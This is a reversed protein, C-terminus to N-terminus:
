ATKEKLWDRVRKVNRQSLPWKYIKGDVTEVIISYRRRGYRNPTGRVARCQTYHLAVSGALILWENGLYTGTMDKSLLCVEGAEFSYGTKEQRRIMAAFRISPLMFILFCIAALGATMLLLM